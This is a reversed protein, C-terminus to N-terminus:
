LQSKILDIVKNKLHKNTDQPFRHNGVIHINKFWCDLKNKNHAGRWKADLTNSILITNVGVAGALEATATCPAIIIDLNSFLGASNLLDSKLNLDEFCFIETDYIRKAKKIPEEHNSYQVNIFNVRPLKFIESFSDIDLYYRDRGVGAASSSWAIGINIYDNSVKNKLKNGWYIRIDDPVKLGEGSNFDSYKKRYIELLDGTLFIKGCEKVAENVKNNMLCSLRSDSLDEYDQLNSSNISDRYLRKFPKFNIGPYTNKLLTFLRYDCAVILSCDVSEFFDKYISAWRIEDGVGYEPLLVVNESPSFSANADTYKKPFSEKILTKVTRYRYFEWAKGIQGAGLFITILHPILSKHIDQDLIKKEYLFLIAKQFHGARALCKMHLSLYAINDPNNFTLGYSIRLSNDCDELEIYCRLKWYLVIDSTSFRNLEEKFIDARGFFTMLIKGAEIVKKLDDSKISKFILLDYKERFKTNSMSDLKVIGSFLKYNVIRERLCSSVLNSASKYDSRMIHFELLQQSIDISRNKLLWNEAVNVGGRWDFARKKISLIQDISKKPYSPINDILDILKSAKKLSGVREYSSAVLYYSSQCPKCNEYNM